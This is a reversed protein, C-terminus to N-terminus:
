SENVKAFSRGQKSGAASKKMRYVGEISADKFTGDARKRRRMVAEPDATAVPIVERVAEILPIGLRHAIWCANRIEAGTWDKDNLASFNASSRLGFEEMYMAWLQSREEQTPLDFFWVGDTFRRKLEPKLSDLENCTAMVYVRSGGIAKVTNMAERIHQESEGVYKSRTGAIDLVLTQVGFTPGTARTLLTKAAGPHGFAIQGSWGNDEMETLLVQLEDGQTSGGMGEREGSGGGIKKELEDIRLIVAPPEPGAFLREMFWRARNVGRIDSYTKTFRDVSLGKVNEVFADRRAFLSPADLREHEDLTMATAQEVEFSSLGKMASVASAVEEESPKAIEKAAQASVLTDTVIERILDADPLPDNIVMVDHILSAPLDVSPSLLVLTQRNGKMHDRCNSIAQRVLPEVLWDQANLLLLMTRPAMAETAALAAQPNRLMPADIEREILMQRGAENQAEVGRASDWSLIPPANGNFSRAVDRVMGHQDPTAVAILPTSVRRALKIQQPVNVRQNDM